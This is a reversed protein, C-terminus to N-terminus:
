NKIIENLKLIMKKLTKLNNSTIIIKSTPPNEGFYEQAIGEDYLNNSILIFNKINKPVILYFNREILFHSLTEKNKLWSIIQKEFKSRIFKNSKNLNYVIIPKKSFIKGKMSKINSMIFISILFLFFYKIPKM